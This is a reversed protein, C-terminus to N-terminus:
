EQAVGMAELLERLRRVECLLAEVDGPAHAIALIDRQIMNGHLNSAVREGDDGEIGSRVTGPGLRPDEVEVVKWPGPTADGWRYEIEKLQDRTMADGWGKEM